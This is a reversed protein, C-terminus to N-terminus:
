QCTALMDVVEQKCPFDAAGAPDGAIFADWGACDLAGVCINVDTQATDCDSDGSMEAGCEMWCEAQDAYLTSCALATDCYEECMLVPTTGDGDGSTTTGDGDGGTTTGDGDGTSTADGDGTSSSDGDGTSTGDGDGSGADDGMTGASGGTASAEGGDEGFGTTDGEIAGSSGIDDLDTGICASAMLLGALASGTTFRLHRRM